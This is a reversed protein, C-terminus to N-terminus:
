RTVERAHILAAHTSLSIFRFIMGLSFESILHQFQQLYVISWYEIYSCCVVKRTGNVVIDIFMARVGQYGLGRHLKCSSQTSSWGRMRWGFNGEHARVRGRIKTTRTQGRIKM